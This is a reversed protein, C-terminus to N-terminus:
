QGREKLLTATVRNLRKAKLAEVEPRGGFCRKLEAEGILKGMLKAIPKALYAM